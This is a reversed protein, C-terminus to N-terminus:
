EFWTTQCKYQLFNKSCPLADMKLKWTQALKYLKPFYLVTHAWGDTVRDSCRCRRASRTQVAAAAKDVWPKAVAATRRGAWRKWRGRGGGRTVKLLLAGGWPTGEEEEAKEVVAGGLWWPHSGRARRRDALQIGLSWVVGLVRESMDMVKRWWGKPRGCNVGGWWSCAAM